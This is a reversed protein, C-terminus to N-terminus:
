EGTAVRVVSQEGDLKRQAAQAEARTAFRGLRVSHMTKGDATSSVVRPAALGASTAKARLKTASAQAKQLDTFSGFQLTFSGTASTGSAITSLRAQVQQALLRDSADTVARDYMAKAEASRGLAQLSDGAFMEARAKDNGTLKESATTLLTAAETHQSKRQSIMGLTAGATGAIRGDVSQTLPTLWKKADAEKPPELAACALGATLAARDRELGTTKTYAASAAQYAKTYERRKYLAEYDTSAANTAPTSSSCGPAVAILAALAVPTVRLIRISRSAFQALSQVLM